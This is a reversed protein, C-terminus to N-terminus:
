CTQQAQCVFDGSSLSFDPSHVVVLVVSATSDVECHDFAPQRRAARLRSNRAANRYRNCSDMSNRVPAWHGSGPARLDQALGWSRSLAPM